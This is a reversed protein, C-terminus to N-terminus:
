PTIQFLLIQTHTASNEKSSSSRMAGSHGAQSTFLLNLPHNDTDRHLSPVGPTFADRLDFPAATAICKFMEVGSPPEVVFPESIYSSGPQLQLDYRNLRPSLLGPILVHVMNDPQIDLLNFWVPFEGLNTVKVTITDGPHCLPLTGDPPEPIPIGRGNLLELAIEMGNGSANYGRLFSARAYMWLRGAINHALTELKIERAEPLSLITNGDPGTLRLDATIQDFSATIGDTATDQRIFPYQELLSSLAQELTDHLNQWHLPVAIGKYAPSVVRCLTLAISDAPFHSHDPKVVCTFPATELVTGCLLTNVTDPHQRDPLVFSVHDGPSVGQLTGAEVVILSDGTVNIISFGESPQQATGGFLQRDLQGEAQPQQYPHHSAFSLRIQQFLQRCHPQGSLQGLSRCFAWTLSGASTGDPFTYEYNNQHAASASIVILSAALDEPPMFGSGRESEGRTLRNNQLENFPTESGRIIGNGRTATGSHCADILVLISGTPGAKQQLAALLVQLTDDRLHKEGEYVGQMYYKGADWPILAEDYGDAEDGNNDAIQQGHGSFHVLLHDGSHVTEGFNRFADLIGQFTGQSDTVLLINEMSFGQGVISKLLLAADNEANIKGWGTLTTPYDGIAIILARNTTSPQFLAVTDVPQAFIEPGAWLVALIFLALVPKRLFGFKMLRM